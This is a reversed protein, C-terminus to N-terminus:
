QGHSGPVGMSHAGGGTAPGKGGDAHGTFDAQPGRGGAVNDLDEPALDTDSAKPDSM